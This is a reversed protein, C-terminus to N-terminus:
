HVQLALSRGQGLLAARLRTSKNIDSVKVQASAICPPLSIKHAATANQQAAAARRRRKVLILSIRRTQRRM